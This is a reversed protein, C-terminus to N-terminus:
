NAPKRQLIPFFVPRFPWAGVIWFVVMIIALPLAKPAILANIVLINVILPGLITLGLPVFQNVIVLLGGIVEMAGIFTLYGTEMMGGVLQGAPGPPLPQKGMFNFLHNSGAFVFLAGLLIRAILSVIKM